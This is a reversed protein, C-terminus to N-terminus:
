IGYIMMGVNLCHLGMAVARIYNGRRLEAVDAKAATRRIRMQTPVQWLFSSLWSVGLVAVSFGFGTGLGLFSSPSSATAAPTSSNNLLWLRTALFTVAVKPVVYVVATAHGNVSQLSQLSPGQISPISWGPFVAFTEMLSGSLCYASLLATTTFTPSLTLAAM